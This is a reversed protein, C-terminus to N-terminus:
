RTTPEASGRATQRIRDAQQPTPSRSGATGAADINTIKLRTVQSARNLAHGEAPRAAGDHAARDRDQSTDFITDILSPDILEHVQPRLAACAASCIPCTLVMSLSSQASRTPCGYIRVGLCAVTGAARVGKVLSHDSVRAWRPLALCLSASRRRAPRPRTTVRSLPM